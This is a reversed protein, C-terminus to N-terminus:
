QNDESYIYGNADSGWFGRGNKNEWESISGCGDLANGEPLDSQQKTDTTPKDLKENKEKPEM